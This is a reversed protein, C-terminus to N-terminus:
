SNISQQIKHLIFFSISLWIVSLCFGAIVDSAFHVHLYVRSIAICAALLILFVSLIWKWIKAINTQWIIYTLLGFFTFSSFSHGSPYSYGIVNSTLPNLPRHRQFINKLVYLLGISSLGVAAISISQLRNRKYFLFFGSLLIYAPLLFKTSGFFTFVLMLKTTAPSIYDALLAFIKLDFATEKELVIEDTIRWFIYVTLLFFLIAALLGLTIKKAKQKIPPNLQEM